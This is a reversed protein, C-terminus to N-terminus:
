RGDDNGGRLVATDADRSASNLSDGCLRWRIQHDEKNAVSEVVFVM